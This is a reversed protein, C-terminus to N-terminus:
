NYVRLPPDDSVVEKDTFAAVSYDYSDQDKAGKPVKIKLPKGLKAGGIKFKIPDGQVKVTNLSVALDAVNCVFTVKGDKSGKTTSVEIEGSLSLEGDITYTIAGTKPDIGIEVMVESKPSVKTLTKAEIKAPAAKAASKKAASEPPTPKKLQIQKKM